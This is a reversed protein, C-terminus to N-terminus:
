AAECLCERDHRRLKELQMTVWSNAIPVRTSPLDVGIGIRRNQRVQNDTGPERGLFAVDVALLHGTTMSAMLSALFLIAAAVEEPEAICDLPMIAEMRDFAEKDKAVKGIFPTRVWTPAVANVRIGAPALPM